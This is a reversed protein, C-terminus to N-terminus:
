LVGNRFFARVVHPDLIVDHIDAIVTSAAAGYVHRALKSSIQIPLAALHAPEPGTVQFPDTRICWERPTRLWVLTQNIEIVDVCAQPDRLQHIRFIPSLLYSGCLCLTVSGPFELDSEHISLDPNSRSNGPSQSETGRHNRSS